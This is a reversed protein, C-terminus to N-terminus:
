STWAGACSASRAVVTVLGQAGRDGAVLGPVRGAFAAIADVEGDDPLAALTEDVLRVIREELAAVGDRSFFPRVLGRLRAHDPDDLFLLSHAFFAAVVRDLEAGGFGVERDREFTSLEVRSSFRDDALITAVDEHRTVVWASVLGFWHVPDHQQLARLQPHPDRQTAPDWPTFQVLPTAETDDRTTSM